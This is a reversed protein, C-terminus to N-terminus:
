NLRRNNIEAILPDLIALLDRADRIIEQMEPADMLDLAAKITCLAAGKLANDLAALRMLHPLSVEPLTAAIRHLAARAPATRPSSADLRGVALEIERSICERFVDASRILQEFSPATQTEIMTM